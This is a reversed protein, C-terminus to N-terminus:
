GYTTSSGYKATSGYLGTSGGYSCAGYKGTGYKGVAFSPQPTASISDVYRILEMAVVDIQQPATAGSIALSKNTVKNLNRMHDIISPKWAGLTYDYQYQGQDSSDVGGLFKGTVQQVVYPVSLINDLVNTLFIATGAPAFQSTSLTITELPSGNKAIEALGRATAAALSTINTDNVKSDFLPIAYSPITPIGAGQMITQTEIPAQYTYTIVINNSANAPATNFLIYQSQANVLVDFNAGLTDRGYVGVKQNVGGVQCLTTANPIYTLGNFQKTSGNGSFVDTKTGVFEGGTIKIRRKVQTGDNEYEYDWYSFSTIEDPSDSLTFSAFDYFSPQYRLTYYMDIFYVFLSTDILNNLVDRLSDDNYSISDVTIGTQIPLAASSNPAVVSLQTPFYVAVIATIIADDTQATFSESINGNDLIAGPGAVTIHWTTNIGDRDKKFDSIYGSFMRVTRSITLDPMQTCDVQGYNCDATPYSIQWDTTPDNFYMPELQPTGFNITGSNSGSVLAIGGFSAKAFTANSPAVGQLSIRQLGNNLTTSFLSQVSAGAIINNNLDFFDLKLLAQANVLPTPITFYTSLCYSQSPHVYGIPSAATALGFNNSQSGTTGSQYLASIRAGSLATNYISVEDVTGPFFDSSDGPNRAINYVFGGTALVSSITSSAVPNGDLYLIATTGDYTIAIQHYVGAAFSTGTYAITTSSGTFGLNAFFGGGHSEICFEIGKHSTGANDNAIIRPFTSFTTNSLKFWCVLTVNAGQTVGAPMAAYGSSGNFLIATDTDNTLTGTQNLTFTGNLTGNNSNGSSDHLVTGSTEDMRYYAQPSDALVASPYQGTFASNAFTMSPFVGPFNSFLSALPSINLSWPPSNSPDPVLNHAPVAPVQVNPDSSPEPPANENWIIIEQGFVFDFTSGEDLVDFQASPIQDNLSQSFQLINSSSKDVAQIEKTYDFGNICTLV